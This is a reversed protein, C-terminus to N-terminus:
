TRFSRYQRSRFWPHRFKYGELYADASEWDEDELFIYARELLAEKNVGTPIRIERKSNKMIVNNILASGCKMCFSYSNENNYGCKPCYM